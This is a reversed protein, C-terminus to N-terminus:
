LNMDMTRFIYLYSCCTCGNVNGCMRYMFLLHFFTLTYIHTRVGGGGRLPFLNKYLQICTNKVYHLIVINVSMNVM